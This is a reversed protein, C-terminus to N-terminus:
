NGEATTIEFQETETYARGTTRSARRTLVPGIWLRDQCTFLSTASNKMDIGPGDDDDDKDEEEVGDTGDKHGDDDQVTGLSRGNTITIPHNRIRRLLAIKRETGSAFGGPTTPKKLGTPAVIAEHSFGDDGSNLDGAFPFGGPPQYIQDRRLKIDNGAPASVHRGGFSLLIM